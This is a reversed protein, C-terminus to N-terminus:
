PPDMTAIRGDRDFLVSLEILTGTSGVLRVTCARAIPRGLVEIGPAVPDCGLSEVRTVRDLLAHIQSRMAEDISSVWRPNVQDDSEGVALKGLTQRTRTALADAEPGTEPRTRPALAPDFFGAIGNAISGYNLGPGGALNGLVIVTLGRDRYRRLLAGTAGGKGATPHGRDLGLEWALGFESASGDTLHFPQQMAAWTAPSLLTGRDIAVAVRALDRATTVGLYSSGAKSVMYSRFHIPTGDRDRYPAALHPVVQDVDPWASESMGLPAFIREEVYRPFPVGSAREVVLTLLYYALNNYATTQGPPFAIPRTRAHEYLVDPPYDLLMSGHIEEAYDDVIGSSHTLLHRITIGSWAGPTHDLWRSIPDDLHLTGHEVLQLIAIATFLKSTSDLHFRTHETVPAGDELNAIGYAGLKVIQGDRVVAIAAGPLHGEKMAARVWADVADGQGDVPGPAHVPAAPTPTCAAGALVLAVGLALGAGGIRQKM